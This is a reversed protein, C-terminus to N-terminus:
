ISRHVTNFCKLCFHPQGDCDKCSTTVKRTCNKAKKTSFNAINKKYCMNCYKRVLCALGEKKQIEHRLMKRTATRSSCSDQLNEDRCQTLHMALAMRFETVKIKKNTAKKYLALANAVSTSLLLEMALKIYWKTTKRLPTSYAIMQDPLDVPSKGANYDVVVKSKQCTYNKRSITVTEASHKTSLTLIDRKDKWELISIRKQNQKAILKGTKLKKSKIEGFIGRRNKRITGVLPTNADILQEALNISTYWNDTYITHGKHRIDKCITIIVGTPTLCGANSRKGSYIQLKYTYGLGSCLKFVKIGYKHRKQKLFQRFIVRGRFPVWSKDVCIGEDLEYYKQFNQNLAETIKNIKSLRNNKDAQENNSFHLFRLLLEFRSRSMVTKPFTQSCTKDTSWYSSISPLKVLGMWLLLGFFRKLENKNTPTWKDLRVSKKKAM